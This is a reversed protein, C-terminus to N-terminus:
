ASAFSASAAIELAAAVLAASPSAGHMKPPKVAFNASVRLACPATSPIYQVVDCISTKPNGFCRGRERQSLTLTLGSVLKRTPASLYAVSRRATTNAIASQCRSVHPIVHNTGWTGLVARQRGATPLRGLSACHPLSTLPSSCVGSWNFIPFFM